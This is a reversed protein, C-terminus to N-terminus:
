GFYVYLLLFGLAALRRLKWSTIEALLSMLQYCLWGNMRVNGCPWENCLWRDVAAMQSVAVAYSVQKFSVLKSAPIHAAAFSNGRKLSGCVFGLRLQHVRSLVLFSFSDATTPRQISNQVARRSRLASLNSRNRCVEPPRKSQCCDSNIFTLEIKCFTIIVSQHLTHASSVHAAAAGRSCQCLHISCAKAKQLIALFVSPRELVQPLQM